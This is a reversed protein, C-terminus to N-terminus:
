RQPVATDVELEAAAAGAAGAALTRLEKEELGVARGAAAGGGLGGERGGERVVV